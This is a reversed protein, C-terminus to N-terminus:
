QGCILKLAADNANTYFLKKEYQVSIQVKNKVEVLRITATKKQACDFKNQTYLITENRNKPPVVLWVIRFDGDIHMQSVLAYVTESDSFESFTAWNKFDIKAPVPEDEPRQLKPTPTPLENSKTSTKKTPTVPTKKATTPKPNSNQAPVSKSAPVPASQSSSDNFITAPDIKLKKIETEALPKLNYVYELEQCKNIDSIAQPKNGKKLHSLGRYLMAMGHYMFGVESNGLVRDFDAIADDPKGSEYRLQGRGLAARLVPDMAEQSAPMALVKEYDALQLTTKKQLSYIGARDVLADAYNRASGEVNMQAGSIQLIANYDAIAADYNELKRYSNARNSLAETNTKDLAFASTFLAIAEEYLKRSGVKDGKGNLEFGQQAAVNGKGVIVASLDKEAKALRDTAEKFAVVNTTALNPEVAFGQRYDAIAKEYIREAAYILARIFYGTAGKPKLEIVKNIDALAKLRTENVVNVGDYKTLSTLPELAAKSNYALARNQYCHAATPKLRVCESHSNIAADYKKEASQQNGLKFFDDATQQASLVSASFTFVLALFILRTM